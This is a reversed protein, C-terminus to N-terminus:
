QVVSCFIVRYLVLFDVLRPIASVNEDLIIDVSKANATEAVDMVDHLWRNGLGDQNKRKASRNAGEVSGGGDSRERSLNLIVGIERGIPCPLNQLSEYSVPPLPAPRDLFPM